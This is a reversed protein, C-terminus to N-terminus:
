TLRLGQAYEVVSRDWLTKNSFPARSPHQPWLVLRTFTGDPRRLKWESWKLAKSQYAQFAQARHPRTFDISSDIVPLIESIRGKLGLCILFDPQLTDVATRLVWSIFSTDFEIKSSDGYRGDDLNLLGSLSLADDRELGYVQNILIAFLSRIKEFFSKSDEILIKPHPIGYTPPDYPRRRIIEQDGAMPSNGPSPGLVLVLPNVVTPMGYPWPDAPCNKVIHQQLASKANDSLSRAVRLRTTADASWLGLQQAEQFTM